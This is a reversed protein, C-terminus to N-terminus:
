FIVQAIYHIGSVCTSMQAERPKKVNIAALAM